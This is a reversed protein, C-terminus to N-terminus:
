ELVKGDLVVGVVWNESHPNYEALIRYRAKDITPEEGNIFEPSVNNYSWTFPQSDGLTTNDLYVLIQNVIEDNSPTSFYFKVEEQLSDIKVKYVQNAEFVYDSGDLPVINGIPQELSDLYQADNELESVKTPIDSAKAYGKGDLETQTIYESPIESLYGKNDIEEKTYYDSLNVNSTQTGLLEWESEVYIYEDYLNEKASNNNILLYVTSSSIDTTPLASVVKTSFKPISSIKTQLSEFDTKTASTVDKWQRTTYDNGLISCQITTKKAPYITLEHNDYGNNLNIAYNRGDEYGSGVSSVGIFNLYWVGNAENPYNIDIPFANDAFTLDIYFYYESVNQSLVLTGFPNNVHKVPIQNKTEIFKDDIITKNYYNDNLFDETVGSGGDGGGSSGGAGLKSKYVNGNADRYLDYWGDTGAFLARFGQEIRNNYRGTIIEGDLMELAPAQYPNSYNKM